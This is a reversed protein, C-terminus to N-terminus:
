LGSNTVLEGVTRALRIATAHEQRTSVETRQQQLAVLLNDLFFGLVCNFKYIKVTPATDQGYM